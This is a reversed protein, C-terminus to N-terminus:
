MDYAELSRQTDESGKQSYEQKAQFYARLMVSIRQSISFQICSSSKLPERLFIQPNSFVESPSQAIHFIELPRESLRRIHCQSVSLSVIVCWLLVVCWIEYRNLYKMLSIISCITSITSYLTFMQYRLSFFSGRSVM